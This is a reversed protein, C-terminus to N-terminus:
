AHHTSRRMTRGARVAERDIGVRECYDRISMSVAPVGVGDTYAISQMSQGLAWLRYRRAGAMMSPQRAVLTSYDRHPPIQLRQRALQVTRRSCGVVTAVEHDPRTGLLAITQPTWYSSWQNRM